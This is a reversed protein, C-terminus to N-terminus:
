KKIGEQLVARSRKIWRCHLFDCRHESEPLYWKNNQLEGNGEARFGVLLDVSVRWRVWGMFSTHHSIYLVYIQLSEENSEDGSV